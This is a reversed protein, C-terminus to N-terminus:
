LAVAVALCLSWFFLDLHFLSCDRVTLMQTMGRGRPGRRPLSNIPSTHCLTQSLSSYSRPFISSKGELKSQLWPSLENTRLPERPSNRYHQSWQASVCANDSVICSQLSSNSVSQLSDYVLLPGHSLDLIHPRFYSSISSHLQPVPLHSCHLEKNGEYERFAV